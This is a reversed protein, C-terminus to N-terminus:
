RFLVLRTGPDSSSSRWEMREELQGAEQPCESEMRAKDAEAEGPWSCEPSLRKAFIFLQFKISHFELIIWDEVFWCQIERYLQSLLVDDAFSNWVRSHDWRRGRRTQGPSVWSSRTWVTLSCNIGWCFTVAAVATVEAAEWMLRPVSAPLTALGTLDSLTINLDLNIDVGSVLARASCVIWRIECDRSFARTLVKM